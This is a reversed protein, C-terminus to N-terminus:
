DGLLWDVANLMLRRQADDPLQYLAFSALVVRQLTDGPRGEGAILAAGGPRDSQLGRKFIVTFNGQSPDYVDKTIILAPVGSESPKLQLVEGRDFGKAIPHRADAVVLDSIPATDGEPLPLAQSGIFMVDGQIGTIAILTDFDEIDFAYDGSEVVYADYGAVDTGTPLGDKEISWVKVTHRSGLISEIEAASTRSGKQGNDRVLVFIRGSKQSAEGASGLGAGEVAEGASCVTVNESQTCGTFDGGSLRDLGKLAADGDQALVVVALRNDQRVTVFLTTGEATVTGLGDIEIQDESKPKAPTPTSPLALTPPIPQLTGTATSTVLAQTPLLIPTPTTAARLPTATPTPTITATRSTATVAVTPPLAIPTPTAALTATPTPSQKIRVGAADLYETVQDADDFTGIFLVNHNPDAEARLNLTLGAREFAAQLAGTRAILRPDLNSGAAQVLDVPGEFLYPFEALTWERSAGALWDALNSLFRDNDAVTHYPATLVTIDGLALVRGDANLAAATLATEGSRVPSKTDSEGLVIARGNSRLSHAAFFIVTNLGRTLPLDNEFRTFKVNRYNGENDALNYLYDDFYVIGFTNAISNMAPVASQPFLAPSMNFISPPEQSPIAHTPDAALLVRGGHRVFRALADREGQTYTTTPAVILWADARRLTATIESSPGGFTEITIGRAALRDRLPSLDDIDLNNEHALDIVARGGAPTAEDQITQFESAASTIQYSDVNPISPPVYWGRYFWLSQAAIPLAVLLLVRLLRNRSKM